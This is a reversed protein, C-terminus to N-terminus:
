YKNEKEGHKKIIQYVSGYTIGLIKVLERQRVGLELLYIVLDNRQKRLAQSKKSVILLEEYRSHKIRSNYTCRACNKSRVKIRKGCKCFNITPYKRRGDNYCIRCLAKSTHTVKRGCKTCTKM